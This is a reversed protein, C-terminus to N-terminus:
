IERLDDRIANNKIQIGKIDSPRIKIPLLEVRLVFLLPSLPCGRRTGREVQFPQSTWGYHKIASETNAPLIKIWRQFEPGFGYLQLSDHILTDSITDIWNRSGQKHFTEVSEKGERAARTLEERVEPTKGTTKLVARAVGRRLFFFINVLIFQLVITRDGVKGKDGLYNFFQNRRLERVM